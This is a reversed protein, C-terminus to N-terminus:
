RLYNAIVGLIQKRQCAMHFYLVEDGIDKYCSTSAESFILWAPQSGFPVKQSPRLLKPLDQQIYINQIYSHCMGEPRVLYPNVAQCEDDTAPCVGCRKGVHHSDGTGM